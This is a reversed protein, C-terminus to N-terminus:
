KCVSALVRRPPKSPRRGHQVSLNNLLLVDGDELKLDVCQEDMIQKFAKVAEVPIASGDGLTISQNKNEEGFGAITNFWVERGGKEFTRITKVLGFTFDATGDAHCEFHKCGMMDAARKKAEEPDNTGLITKWTKSILSNSPQSPTTIKFLLGMDKVKKVFEPLVEEMLPPILHSLVIASQGGEPPATECFFFLKSPWVKMVAMEHHFDIQQHLPSENATYVRNVIETRPAFGIYQQEEWGFAEVVAKFDAASRVAFGRFILANNKMVEDELWARKNRISQVVAEVDEKQLDNAPLLVKPFLKDDVVKQEAIRGEVFDIVVNDRVESSGM